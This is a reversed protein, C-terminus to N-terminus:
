YRIQLEREQIKFDIYILWYKVNKEWIMKFSNEDAKINECPRPLLM